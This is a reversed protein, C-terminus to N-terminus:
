LWKGAQRGGLASKERYEPGSAYHMDIGPVFHPNTEGFKSFFVVACLFCGSKRWRDRFFERGAV